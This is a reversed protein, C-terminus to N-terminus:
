SAPTAAQTTVFGSGEWRRLIQATQATHQALTETMQRVEERLQKVEETTAQQGTLGAEVEIGQVLASAKAIERAYILPDTTMSEFTGLYSRLASPIDQMATIRSDTTGVLAEAALESVLGKQSRLMQEYGLAEGLDNTFLDTRYDRLARAASMLSDAADEAASQLIGASTRTSQEQLESIKKQADELEKSMELTAARVAEEIQKQQERADATPTQNPKNFFDAEDFVGYLDRVLPAVDKALEGAQDLASKLGKSDIEYGEEMNIAQAIQEMVPAMMPEVVQAVLQDVAYRQLGSMVGDMFSSVFAQGVDGGQSSVSSVASMINGTVSQASVGTIEEILAAAKEAAKDFDDGLAAAWMGTADFAAYLEQVAPVVSAAASKALSVAEALASADFEEGATMSEAIRSLPEELVPMVTSTVMQSIATNAVGDLIERTFGEVFIEGADGGQSAAASMASSISSVVSDANVGTVLQILEKLRAEEVLALHHSKQALYEYKINLQDISQNFGSDTFSKISLFLNDIAAIAEQRDAIGEVGNDAFLREPWWAGFEDSLDPTHRLVSLNQWSWDSRRMLEASLPGGELAMDQIANFAEQRADDRRARREEDDNSFLSSVLGIAAGIAAGYPGGGAALATGITAGTAAMSATSSIINGARGGIMEGVGVGAAGIANYLAADRQQATFGEPPNAYVGYSEAARAFASLGRVEIGGYQLTNQLDGIGDAVVGWPDKKAQTEKKGTGFIEPKEEFLKKLQKDLKVGALDVRLQKLIANYETKGIIEEQRLFDLKAKNEDFQKQARYLGEIEETYEGYWDKAAELTREYERLEEDAKSSSNGLGKVKDGANKTKNGGEKVKKSFEKLHETTYGLAEAFADTTGSKLVSDKGFTLSRDSRAGVPDYIKSRITFRQNWEPGGLLYKNERAQKKAKDYVYHTSGLVAGGILAGTPGAIKGGVAAGLLTSWGGPIENVKKILAGIATTIGEIAPKLDKGMSVATEGAAVGMDVIGVAFDGIDEKHDIIYTTLEDVAPNLADFVRDLAGSELVAGGLTASLDSINANLQKSKNAFSDQTRAMDGVADANNGVIMTYVEQAKMLPTIEGKTEALGKKLISQEVSAASIMTGYKRVTEYNGVMASQIDRMVDATPLNNFSGLDASLKVIDASMVAAEGAVMGMPKLMDQMSSMFSMAENKSMAYGGAINDAMEYASKSVGRFVVDFKGTTEQLNSADQVAKGIVGTFARLGKVAFAGAALGGLAKLSGSLRGVGKDVNKISTSFQKVARDAANEAIIRMKIDEATVAM